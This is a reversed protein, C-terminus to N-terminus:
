IRTNDISLLLLIYICGTWIEGEKRAEEKRLGPFTDKSAYRKKRVSNEMILFIERAPSNFVEHWGGRKRRVM